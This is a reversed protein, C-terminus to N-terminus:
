RMDGFVDVEDDTALESVDEDIGMLMVEKGRLLWEGTELEMGMLGCGIWCGGEDENM